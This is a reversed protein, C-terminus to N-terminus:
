GATASKAALISEEMTLQQFLGSDDIPAIEGQVAAELTAFFVAMAGIWHTQPSYTVDFLCRTLRPVVFPRRLWAM